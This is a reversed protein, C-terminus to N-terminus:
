NPACARRYTLAPRTRNLVVELLYAVTVTGQTTEQIGPLKSDSNKAQPTEALHM